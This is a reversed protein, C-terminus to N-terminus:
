DGYEGHKDKPEPEKLDYMAEAVLWTAMAVVVMAVIIGIWFWIKLFFISKIHGYFILHYAWGFLLLHGIIVYM